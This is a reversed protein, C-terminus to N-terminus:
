GKGSAHFERTPDRLRMGRPRAAVGYPYIAGADAREIGIEPRRRLVIPCLPIMFGPLGM